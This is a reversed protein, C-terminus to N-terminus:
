FLIKIYLKEKKLIFNNNKISKQNLKIFIPIRKKVEQSKKIFFLKQYYIRGTKTDFKFKWCIVWMATM